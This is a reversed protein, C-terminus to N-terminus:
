NLFSYKNSSLIFILSKVACYAFKACAQNIKNFTNLKTRAIRSIIPQIYLNRAVTYKKM